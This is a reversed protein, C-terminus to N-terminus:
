NTAPSIEIQLLQGMMMPDQKIQQMLKDVQPYTQQIEQMMDSDPSRSLENLVQLPM